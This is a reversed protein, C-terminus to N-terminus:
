REPYVQVFAGNRVQFIYIVPEKLDGEETYAIKGILTNFELRRLAQTVEAIQLSQARKVAEALTALASYGNISYTDPNRHEIDRYERIWKADTATAPSPAFASVYMGEAKGEAEDITTTLFAGDSALM